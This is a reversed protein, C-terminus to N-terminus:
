IPLMNAPRSGSAPAPTRPTCLPHAPSRASTAFPTRTPPPTGTSLKGPPPLPIPAPPPNLTPRPAPNSAPPVPPRLPNPDSAPALDARVLVSVHETDLLHGHPGCDIRWLHYYHIEAAPAGDIPDTAPFVQGYITGNESKVLPTSDGPQFEAPINSCDHSGILFKPRLQVLLSQELDDSIGDHDSDIAPPAPQPSQATSAFIGASAIPRALASQAM